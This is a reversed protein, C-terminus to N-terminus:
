DKEDKVIISALSLIASGPGHLHQGAPQKRVGASGGYVCGTIGFDKEDKVRRLYYIL